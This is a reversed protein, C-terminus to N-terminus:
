TAGPRSEGKDDVADSFDPKTSLRVPLKNDAVLAIVKMANPHPEGSANERYYWVKGGSQKLVTFRASNGM